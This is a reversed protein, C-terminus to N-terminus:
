TLIEVLQVILIKVVYWATSAQEDTIEHLTSLQNRPTASHDGEMQLCTRLLTPTSIM